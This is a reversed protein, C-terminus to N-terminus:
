EKGGLFGEHLFVPEYGHETCFRLAADVRQFHDPRYNFYFPWFYQEHTLLDMIEATNPDRTLPELVSEVTTCHHPVNFRAAVDPARAPDVDMVSVIEASSAMKVFEPLTRRAAIGGCGIVGWRVKNNTSQKMVLEKRESPSQPETKTRRSAGSGPM